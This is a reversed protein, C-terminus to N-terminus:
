AYTPLTQIFQIPQNVSVSNLTITFTVKNSNNSILRSINFSTPRTNGTTLEQNYTDTIKSLTSYLFDRVDDTITTNGSAGVYGSVNAAPIYYGATTTAPTTTAAGTGLWTALTATSPQTPM